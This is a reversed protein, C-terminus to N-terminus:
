PQAAPLRATLHASTSRRTRKGAEVLPRLYAEFQLLEEASLAQEIGAGISPVLPNPASELFAEWSQPEVETGIDRELRLHLEVFGAGQAIELLDREDFDVMSKEREDFDHSMARIKDHLSQVSSVDFGLFENPPSQDLVNIPEYISIRGGPRLVRAFEAFARQKDAVYILVARTAVADVSASPVGALDEAGGRVFSSRAAVGLNDALQRCQDLLDQSVDSFIVSVSEGLVELAGFGILGDGTGVDLLVDRPKLQLGAIVQDRVTQLKILLARQYDIDGGHRRYLLWDAWKDSATGRGAQRTSM